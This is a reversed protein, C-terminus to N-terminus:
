KKEMKEYVPFDHCNPSEALFDEHLEVLSLPAAILLYGSRAVASSGGASRSSFIVIGFAAFSSVTKKRDM